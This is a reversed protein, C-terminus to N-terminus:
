RKLYKMSKILLVAIWLIIAFLVLIVTLILTDTSTEIFVGEELYSFINDILFMLGSSGTILALIDLRLRSDRNKFWILSTIISLTILVISYM